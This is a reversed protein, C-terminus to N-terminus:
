KKNKKKKFKEFIGKLGKQKLVLLFRELKRFFKLIPHGMGTIKAYKKEYEEDRVVYNQHKLPFELEYTEMNFLRKTARPLLKYEAAHTSDATCGINKMMNRKPIIFLRNQAYVEFIHFFEGGVVHKGPKAISKLAKKMVADTRAARKILKVNYPDKLFSFTYDRTENTRKWIAMGWSAESRAFFYDSSANEWVGCHNMSCIGQIRTDDKYKELLEACFKFYSVSVIQDDELFICRDVKSWVFEAGKKSMAFLGNNKEEYIKYVTCDWDIQTDFLARNKKIAEIEKENRGGDSVLFMVSPRAAKLVEFQKKQCEERIWINVRVPVDVLYTKLDSMKKKVEESNACFIKSNNM